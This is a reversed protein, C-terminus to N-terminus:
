KSNATQELGILSYGRSKQYELYKYLNLDTVEFIPLYKEAGKSM